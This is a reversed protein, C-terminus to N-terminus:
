KDGFFWKTAIGKHWLQRRGGRAARAAPYHRDAEAAHPYPWWRRRRGSRALHGDIKVELCIPAAGIETEM